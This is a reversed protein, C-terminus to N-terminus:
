HKPVNQPSSIKRECLKRHILGKFTETAREKEAKRAVREFNRYGEQNM